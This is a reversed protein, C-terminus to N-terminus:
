SKILPIELITCIVIKTTRYITLEIQKDSTVAQNRSRGFYGNLRDFRLVLASSKDPQTFWGKCAWLNSTCISLEM